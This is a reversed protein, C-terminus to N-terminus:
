SHVEQSKRELKGRLVALSRHLQSKVTSVPLGLTAAIEAPELDEQYRLLMVARSRPPLAGILRQLNAALMPDRTSQKSSPEPVEHIGIRPRLKRRRSEDICRHSTVRRLWFKVHEPSELEEIKQHLHLFVDQALEEATAWDRLFNWALGFVMSQHQQVVEAFRSREM